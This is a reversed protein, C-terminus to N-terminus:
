GRIADNLVRALQQPRRTSLLWYPTPDAPDDLSVKVVDPVWGRVVLYARRDLEHRRQATADEGTHVTAGSLHEVGIHAKGVRLEVGGPTDVVSIVEAQRWLATGCAVVGVLLGVLVLMPGLPLFVLGLGIPGVSAALVTGVSPTLRETYRVAPDSGDRGRGPSTSVGKAEWPSSDREARGAGSGDVTVGTWRTHM